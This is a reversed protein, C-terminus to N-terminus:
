SSADFLVLQEHVLKFNRRHLPTLGLTALGQRHAPTAYGMNREWGYGPYQPALAMVASDRAQKAVVSASAIVSSLGDGKIIARQGQRPLQPLYSRGDLLILCDDTTISGDLANIISLVQELARWSALLSAHHINLRNVEELTAEGLGIYALKHLLPALRLREEPKMQKSDNLTHLIALQEVPLSELEFDLPWCCAGAVVSGILSGRGVEDLGILYRREGAQTLRLDADFTLLRFLSVNEKPKRKAQSKTKLPTTKL